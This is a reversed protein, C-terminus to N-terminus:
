KECKKFFRDSKDGIEAIKSFFHLFHRRLFFHTKRIWAISHRKQIKTNETQGVKSIKELILHCFQCKKFFM